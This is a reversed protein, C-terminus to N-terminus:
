LANSKWRGIPQLLLNIVPTRHAGPGRKPFRMGTMFISRMGQRDVARSGIGPRVPRRSAEPCSQSAAYCTAFQKQWDCRKAECCIWEMSVRLTDTSADRGTMRAEGTRNGPRGYTARRCVRRTNEYETPAAPPPMPTQGSLPRPLARHLSGAKLQEGATGRLGEFGQHRLLYLCDGPGRGDHHGCQM